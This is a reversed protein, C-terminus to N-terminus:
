NQTSGNQGVIIVFDATGPDIGSPLKGTATTKLRLELYHKTYKKQGSRLDVLMNSTYDRTPADDVKIVNYGYSKLEEAKATAAGGTSSGNLVIISPNEKRIFGDKLTNRVFSQIAAYSYRGEKPIVVSQNDVYGTTVLEQPPDALGVSVIKSSDIQKGMSYLRMIDDINFNTQIHKGFADMLQTVKVPNGFTGLSFVKDKLAVLVERQHQNRDFDGRATGHRSQAYFLAHKGDVQQTGARLLLPNGRNASALFEDYLPEKVNLTIGGVTDIAQSFGAFDVIVHYHIPIGAVEAVKKEIAEFGAQEAEQASKGRYLANQKAAAFVANIKMSGNSTRVYLDRPLSLLGADKQIPDISAVMITDTLDPGDHGAGGRALLLINIRGDGEGKLKKPDIEDNLATAGSGGGGFIQRARLYGKGFMYGGLLVSIIFVSTALRLFLRGLHRPKKVKKELNTDERELENNFKPRRGTATGDPGVSGGTKRATFGDAKSSFDDIQKKSVTQYSRSRRLNSNEPSLANGGSQNSSIFGDIYTPKRRRNSHRRFNDM